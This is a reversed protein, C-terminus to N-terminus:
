SSQMCLYYRFYCSSSYFVLRIRDSYEKNCKESSMAEKYTMTNKETFAKVFNIWNSM